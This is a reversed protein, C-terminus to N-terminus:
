YTPQNTVKALMEYCDASKPVLVDLVHAPINDVLWKPWAGVYVDKGIKKDAFRKSVNGVEHKEAGGVVREGRAEERVGGGGNGATRSTSIRNQLKNDSFPRQNNYSRSTHIASRSQSVYGSNKWKEDRSPSPKANVCGM